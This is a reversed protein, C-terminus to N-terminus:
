RPALQPFLREATEPGLQVFLASAEVTTTTGHRIEGVVRVKRGDVHEVRTLVELDVHLPTPALFRVDLGVTMGGVGAAIAAEGLLHDLVLCLIGGHALGPGGEHREALRFTGRVGGEVLEVAVPPAVPHATGTVLSYAHRFAGQDLRGAGDRVSAGLMETVGDVVAAAQRLVEEDVTTRLITDLMRRVADALEDAATV